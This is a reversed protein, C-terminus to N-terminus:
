AMGTQRNYERQKKQFVRFMKDGDGEVVITMSGGNEALAKSMAGYTATAIAETIQNNNAVATNGNITGIMEAGQENAVFLDGNPVYGGSAYGQLKKMYQQYEAITGFDSPSLQTNPVNAKNKNSDKNNTPLQAKEPNTDKLVNKVDNALDNALDDLGLKDAVTELGELFSNAGSLEIAFSIVIKGLKQFWEIIGQIKELTSKFSTANSDGSSWVNHTDLYNKVAIMKDRVDNFKNKLDNIYTSLTSTPNQLNLTKDYIKQLIDVFDKAKNYNKDVSTLLKSLAKDIFDNIAKKALDVLQKVKDIKDLFNEIPNLSAVFKGTNEGLKRSFEKLKDIPLKSTLKELKTTFDAVKGSIKALADPLNKFSESAFGEVFGKIFEDLIPKVTKNWIKKLNDYIKKLHPLVNQKLTTGVEKIKDVYPQITTKVNGLGKKIKNVIDDVWNKIKPDILAEEFMQSADQLKDSGSGGKTDTLNNLEDFQALQHHLAKARGSADDLSDAYDVWFYKAKTYETGFVASGVQALVNVFKILTNIATEVYPILARLVPIVATAVANKFYLFESAYRSMVNNASHADLEELAKSYLALNQIGEKLGQTISKLVGRIARYLAIRALAKVLTVIGSIFNKIPKLVLKIAGTFIKTAFSVVSLAVGVWGLVKSLKTLVGVSMGATKALNSMKEASESNALLSIPNTKVLNQVTQFKTWFGGVSETAEKAENSVDSFAESVERSSVGSDTPTTSVPNAQASLNATKQVNKLSGMNKNAEGLKSFASALREIKEVAEYSIHSMAGQLSDLNEATTKIKSPSISNLKSLNKAITSIAKIKDLNKASLSLKSIQDTLAKFGQATNELKQKTPLNKKLTGLASSINNLATIAKTSDASIELVLNDVQAM